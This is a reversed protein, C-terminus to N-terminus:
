QILTETTSGRSNSSVMLSLSNIATGEPVEYILVLRRSEGAAFDGLYESLDDQLMTKYVSKFGQGNVNVKFTVGEAYVNLQGASGNNTVNFFIVMLKNGHTADMSFFYDTSEEPYSDLLRYEVYDISYNSANLFEEITVVPASNDVVAAGGSGDNNSTGDSSGGQSGSGSQNNLAEQAEAEKRREEEEKQKSAEYARIGDERVKVATEYQQLFESTDVLRSHNDSDYKLLLSAAYESVMENEEDTLDPLSVCASLTLSTVLLLTIMVVFRKKM